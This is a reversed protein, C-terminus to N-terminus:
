EPGVLVASNYLVGPLGEEAMGWIIYVGRVRAEAALRETTPGPIPEALTFFQDGCAYGTLALEPFIVLQARELFCCFKALNAAKDATVPEIQALAVRVAM